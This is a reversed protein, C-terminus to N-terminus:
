FMTSELSDGSPSKLLGSTPSLIWEVYVAVPGGEGLARSVRPREFARGQLKKAGDLCSFPSSPLCPTPSLEWLAEGHPPQWCVCGVPPPHPDAVTSIWAHLAHGRARAWLHWTWSPSREQLLSPASSLDKVRGVGMAHHEWTPWTPVTPVAPHLKPEQGQNGCGDFPSLFGGM